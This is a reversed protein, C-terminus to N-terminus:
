GYYEYVYADASFTEIRNYTNRVKDMITGFDQAVVTTRISVVLVFLIICRM